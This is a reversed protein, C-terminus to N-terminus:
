GRSTADSLPQKATYNTTAGGETNEEIWRELGKVPIRIEADVRVSPWRGSNILEYVKNLGFGTLEAAEKVRLLLRDTM